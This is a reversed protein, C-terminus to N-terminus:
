CCGGKKKTSVEAEAVGKKTLRINTQPDFDEMGDARAGARGARKKPGSGSAVSAAVM